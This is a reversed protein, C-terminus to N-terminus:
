FNSHEHHKTKKKMEKSENTELNKRKEGYLGALNARQQQCLQHRKARYPLNLYTGMDDHGMMYKSGVLCPWSGLSARLGRVSRGLWAM